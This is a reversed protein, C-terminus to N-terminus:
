ARGVSCRQEISQMKADEVGPFLLCAIGAAPRTVRLPHDVITGRRQTNRARRTSARRHRRVTTHLNHISLNSMTSNTRLRRRPPTHDSKRQSEYPRQRRRQRNVFSPFSRCTDWKQRRPRLNPVLRSAIATRAAYAKGVIATAHVRERKAPLATCVCRLLRNRTRTCLPQSRKVGGCVGVCRVCESGKSKIYWPNDLASDHATDYCRSSYTANADM